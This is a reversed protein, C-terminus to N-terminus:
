ECNSGLMLVHLKNLSGIAEPISGKIFNRSIDLYMLGETHLAQLPQMISGLNGALNGSRLQLLVVSYPQCQVQGLEGLYNHHEGCCVAGAWCCYSPALQGNQLTCPMCQSSDPRWAAATTATAGDQLGELTGWTWDFGNLRNYIDVLAGHIATRCSGNCTTNSTLQPDNLGCSNSVAAGAPGQQATQVVAVTCIALLLLLFGVHSAM